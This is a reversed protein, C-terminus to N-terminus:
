AQARRRALFVGVMGVGLIALPAPEPVAPVASQQAVNLSFTGSNDSYCSPGGNYNCADSIGLYLTTAGTPVYFTQASGTGDGTLGDGIFFTQDLVPSLSTFSTGSGTTFNLATPASGSPVTGAVFLGVLYGGGSATIGSITSTGSEYSTTTGAGAGDADNLNGGDNISICGATSTTCTDSGTVGSFQLSSVGASLTVATPASFGYQLTTNGADYIAANAQVTVSARAAPAGLVILSAAIAALLESRTRM